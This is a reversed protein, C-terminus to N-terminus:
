CREKSTAMMVGLLKDRISATQTKNKKEKIVHLPEKPYNKKASKSFLAGIVDQLAYHIYGGLSWNNSDMEKFATKKKEIYADQYVFYHQPNGFWFEESSM